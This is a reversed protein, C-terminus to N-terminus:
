LIGAELLAGRIELQELEAIEEAVLQRAWAPMQCDHVVATQREIRVRERVSLERRCREKRDAVPWV